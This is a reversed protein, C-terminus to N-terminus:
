IPHPTGKLVSASTVSSAVPEVTGRCVARIWGEHGHLVRRKKRAIPDVVHLTGITDGAALLAQGHFDFACLATIATGDVELVSYQTGTAPNWLRITEDFSGTALLFRDDATLTCVASIPKTHGNLVFREAGTALDWIRATRDDSGSALLTRGGLAFTALSNIGRTHGELVSREASCSVATWASQYPMEISASSIHSFAHGLDKLSETVSFMAARAGPTAERARPTLWLLKARQQAQASQVRDVLPLLQNLDVHLLFDDDSVLDDMAGARAAHIPLSRLLYEPASGWGAQRGVSLFAETLAREDAAQAETLARGSLLSDNLAQHFLRFTSARRTPPQGPQGAPESSEVLFNAASSRAFRALETVPVDGWGLARLAVRWLDVPMGPAEAFALATLVEEAPVGAIPPIRSLHERMAADVTTTFRLTAPDAATEDYLGHARAILGAILFNAASLEAIRAAVPGAAAEDAYPNAPREDDTLRLTALAYDALDSQSFYRGDDLDVVTAAGGLLGLLEGDADRRRSGLTVQVGVDACTEAIPAIVKTIMVRAQAPSAAEDLADIIVNFRRGGRGALAERLAPAFDELQELGTPLSASAARAIETAVELATKGKAHVACAVSGLTARAAGDASPLQSAADPDATTVIRGLVASKGAGPAGTVILVRRDLVTRDLWEGITRLATTRGRFRYGRESDNSVGRARPRWHRRGELDSALTWGWATLALEGSDTARAKEALEQLGHGPLCQAARHISLAQGNRHEDHVAVIGVVAGFEPSWLGTGSFGPEIPYTSTVDIRVWGAALAAGVDGESVSGRRQQPPFGLAWWKTGVLSKPMPCRLRAPWVGQPVPDALELIAVDLDEDFSGDGPMIVSDVACRTATPPDAMPFGVWIEDLKEGDRMVVHACTLVRREDIVVGSGVPSGGHVSRHIAVVWADVEPHVQRALPAQASQYITLDRGAAYTDRGAQAHQSVADNSRGLEGSM